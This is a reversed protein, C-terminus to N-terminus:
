TLDLGDLAGTDGIAQWIQDRLGIVYDRSLHARDKWTVEGDVVPACLVVDPCYISRLEVAYTASQTVDLYDFLSDLEPPLVPQVACDGLVTAVSLCDLPDAGSTAWGATTLVSHVILARAGTAEIKDITDTSHRLMMQHWTEDPFDAADDAKVDAVLNDAGDRSRQILVVVDADLEPLLTDYFATRQDRCPDNVADRESANYVGQIWACKNRINTALRFGREEALKRFAPLVMAAHSDGVLAVLPEDAPGDVEMCSEPTGDECQAGTDGRDELLSDLPLDRPVAETTWALEGTLDVRSEESAAAVNVVPRSQRELVPAVVTAAVLVSVALGAAVTPWPVRDLPKARRIPTEFAQFSLAALATAVLAIVVASGQPGLVTVERVVLTVPWHWLYTGYSIQGLYRFTPLALVRTLAFRPTTHLGGILAVSAVTALVGRTSNSVDVANSGLVVIGVLGLTGTAAWAWTPGGVRGDEGRRALARIALALLAGGLLQYVRAHTAYYAADPDTSAMVLQTALSGVFLVGLVGAFVRESRVAKAGLLWCLVPFVIYFQEEIALSWFHLFPSPRQDQAFYDTADGIFHWNAVYLLAARADDVLNIRSAEPLVLVQVVCTAVIVLVAAPLLRRVRRAYFAGLRFRGEDIESWIVNTVLFGSLVFFLDVGIFGGGVLAVRAHFLLVLYVAIARLGDLQPRYGWSM